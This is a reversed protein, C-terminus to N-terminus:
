KQLKALRTHTPWVGAVPIPLTRRGPDALTANARPLPESYFGVSGTPVAMVVVNM